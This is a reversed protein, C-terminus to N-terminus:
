QIEIFLSDIRNQAEDLASNVSSDGAIINDITEKMIADTQIAQPKLWSRATPAQEAFVNGEYESALSKLAPPLNEAELYRRNASEETTVHKVFDWAQEPNETARSVGLGWYNAYNVPQEVEKPQPMKAVKFDLNDNEEEIREMQHSYNFMMVANENVFASLSNKEEPNWTYNESSQDSFSLYFQLANQAPVVAGSETNVPEAFNPRGSDTNMRAGSQLMLLSIIDVARNVNTGGLAAGSVAVSGDENLVKMRNSYDAFEEWTEPPNLLNHSNFFAENYYLALTDLYLPLAYVAEEGTATNNRAFDFRVVDPYKSMFSAVNEGETFYENAPELFKREMPLWTNHIAYIDPGNGEAIATRVKNRYEKLNAADVKRYEVNTDPAHLPLSDEYANIMEQYANASGFIGWVELNVRERRGEEDGFFSFVVIALIVGVFVAAIVRNRKYPPINKLKSLM